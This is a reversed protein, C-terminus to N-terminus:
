CGEAGQSGGGCDNGLLHHDVVEQRAEPTKVHVHLLERGLMLYSAQPTAHGSLFHEPRKSLTVCPQERALGDGEGSPANFLSLRDRSHADCVCM